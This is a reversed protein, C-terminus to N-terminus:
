LEDFLDDIDKQPIGSDTNNVEGAKKVSGSMLYDSIERITQHEYVDSLQLDLGFEDRVKSSIVMAMLSDMGFEYLNQDADVEYGLVEKIIRTMKIETDNLSQCNVTDDKTDSDATDTIIDASDSVSLEFSSEYDWYTKREFPYNSVVTRYPKEDYLKEWDAQIGYCWLEGLFGLFGERSDPATPSDFVPFAPIAEDAIRMKRIMSSLTDSVGIEIFVSSKKDETTCVANCFDVKRRMQGVWYDPKAMDANNGEASASASSIIRINGNSFATKETISSYSGCIKDMVSCHGARNVGMRSCMINKENLLKEFSDIDAKLGSVMIRGPANVAGIELSGYLLKETEEESLTVNLMGGEPLSDILEQREKLLRVADQPSIIGSFAAAIYEGNSHGMVADPAIGFAELTKALSYGISFLLLIARVNDPKAVYSDFSFGSYFEKMDTIGADKAYGFCEDMNQRFISNSNYLEKGVTRRFDGAGSFVFVIDRKNKKQYQTIRRSRQKKGNAIIYSRFDFDNRGYQLTYAIDDLRKKGDSIIRSVDEKIKDAAKRTKGSVLFLQPIDRNEPTRLPKNRYESLLIMANAGGMGVSSAVATLEKDKTWPRLETCVELPCDATDLEDCPSSYNITPVLTRNKLMLATKIVNAVGSAMNTHGMNSKVSGILVKDDDDRRGIVNKLARAEICDGLETATGHTEVYDIESADTESVSLLDELCAMQGYVSPAGFGAKRNGDNNVFSGKIVAIINDHDEVAEDYRKLAILGAGSAPILGDANKDFPRIVGKQSMTNLSSCYTTQETEASIGGALAIDCEYNLLSQCAEHIANNSSACAYESMVAPGEFGFKYAIKECRTAMYIKSLQYKTYWDAGGRMIRNWVYVSNDFSIFLGTRGKYKINSYGSNEFLHHTLELMIRGQPDSDLAERPSFDFFDADFDAINELVGFAGMHMNSDLSPDRTICNRGEKLNEWYKDINEAKPFRCVMGIVAISYESGAM